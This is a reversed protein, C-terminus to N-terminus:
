KGHSGVVKWRPADNSAALIGFFPSAVRILGAKGDGLTSPGASSSSLMPSSKGQFGFAENM